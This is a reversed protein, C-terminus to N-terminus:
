VRFGSCSCALTSAACRVHSLLASAGVCGIKRRDERRLLSYALEGRGGRWGRLCVLDFSTHSLHLLRHRCIKKFIVNEVPRSSPRPRAPFPTSLRHSCELGLGARLSSKYRDWTMTGSSYESLYVVHIRSMARVM